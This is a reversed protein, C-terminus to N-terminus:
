LKKFEGLKLDNLHLDEIRIRHLKLVKYNLAAFTRRIQRNRGENMSVLWNKSEKMEDLSLKSIGDELMVGKLSIQQKDSLSLTKNLTVEYQKIKIFKPHTLEYALNGDNTLLILGSSNKDLRGAPKLSRYAEPLLDYITPSHQGARSCVYGIPKNLVITTTQEPLALENNEYTIQDSSSVQDGIGAPQGNIHVKGDSIAKDAARRSMGTAQAVYKNIRTSM